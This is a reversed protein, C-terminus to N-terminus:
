SDCELSLQTYLSHYEKMKITCEEETYLTNDGSRVQRRVHRWYKEADACAYYLVESTEM